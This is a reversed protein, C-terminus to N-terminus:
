ISKDQFIPQSFSTFPFCWHHSLYYYLDYIEAIHQLALLILFNLHLLEFSNNM